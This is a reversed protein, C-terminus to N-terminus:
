PAEEEVPSLTIRVMDGLPPLSWPGGAELRVNGDGERPGSDALAQRPPQHAGGAGAQNQETGADWAALEATLEAAIAATSRPRGGADLLAVGTPGLALLTDNSPVVMTVFSLRPASATAQVEFSLRGGPRLLPGSEPRVLGRSAIGPRGALVDFLPQAEGDEALRELATSARMGPTFLPSSDAHTVWVLPSLAGPFAGGSTNRITLEFLGADDLARVEIQAFGGAAPGCLDCSSDTYVRITPRPDPAGLGPGRAPMSPGVGPVENAEVGADWVAAMTMVDTAIAEPDRLRPPQDDTYLHIGPPRMAVFVDNSEVVMFAFSLLPREPDADLSFRYREGPRAPGPEGPREVPRDAVGITRVGEAGRHAELLPGVDGETALRALAPSAPAGDEFPVWREDHQVYFIPSIPTVLTGHAGSTNEIEFDLRTGEATVRVDILRDVLPMARTPQRFRRVVSERAGQVVTGERPAQDLGMGPPEDHETGANWLQLEPGLERAPLPVGDEDFLPVGDEDPAVFVDNTEALMTVFSLRPHARDAVIEAVYAQGPRAPAGDDDPSRMPYPTRWLDAAGVEPRQRVSDLLPRPGGAEALLELGEGRDPTGREFFVARGAHTAWVGPTIPTVLPCWHSRNEFRLRFRFQDSSAPPESPVPPDAPGCTTLSLGLAIGGIACSIRM